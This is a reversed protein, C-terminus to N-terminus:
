PRASPEAERTGDPAADGQGAEGAKSVAEVEDGNRQSIVVPKGRGDTAGVEDAANGGTVGGGDAPNGAPTGGGTVGGGTVGGGTVGGGDARGDRGV